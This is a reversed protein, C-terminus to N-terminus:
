EECISKCMAITFLSLGYVSLTVWWGALVLTVARILILPGHLRLDYTSIAELVNSKYRDDNDCSVTVFVLAWLILGSWTFAIVLNGVWSHGLVEDAYVGLIFLITGVLNYIFRKM